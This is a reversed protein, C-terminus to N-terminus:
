GANVKAVASGAGFDVSNEGFILLVQEGEGELSRGPIMAPGRVDELVHNEAAGPAVGKFIREHDEELSAGVGKQVGEGVGIFRDVGGCAHHLRIEDVKQPNVAVRHEKGAQFGLCELLFAVTQLEAGLIAQLAAADNEVLHAAAAGRRFGHGAVPNKPRDKGIRGVPPVRAAIRPVDGFEGVLGERVEMPAEIMGGVDADEEVPIVIGIFDQSDEIILKQAAEFVPAHIGRNGQLLPPASRPIRFGM